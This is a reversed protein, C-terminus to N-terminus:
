LLRPMTRSYPGVPHHNRILSTGRYDALWVSAGLRAAVAKRREKNGIASGLIELVTRFGLQGIRGAM